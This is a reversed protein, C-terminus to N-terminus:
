IPFRAEWKWAEAPLSSFTSCPAGLASSSALWLEGDLHPGFGGPWQWHAPLSSGSFHDPAPLPPLQAQCLRGSLLSEPVPEVRRGLHLAEAQPLLEGLVCQLCASLFVLQLRWGRGTLAPVPVSSNRDGWWGLPLFGWNLNCSCWGRPWARPSMLLRLSTPFLESKRVGVIHILELLMRRRRRWFQM